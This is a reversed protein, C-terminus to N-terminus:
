MKLEGETMQIIVDLMDDSMVDQFIQSALGEVEQATIQADDGHAVSQFAAQLM